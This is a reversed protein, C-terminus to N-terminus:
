RLGSNFNKLSYDEHSASLGNTMGHTVGFHPLALHQWLYEYNLGIVPYYELDVAENPLIILNTHQCYPHAHRALQFAHADQFTDHADPSV